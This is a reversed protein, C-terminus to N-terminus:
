CWDGRQIGEGLGIKRKAKKGQIEGLFRPHLGIPQKGPRLIAINKGESLTDGAEIAKIAQIGRKAFFRLEHESPDIVKVQPGLMAEVQRVARVMEGLEEATVAFSHDPGPLARDMTFHKEIVTAGLAAAAIPALLPDRSHDSLGSPVGFREKLWRIANLNLTEAPYCATCQLLTLDRGGAAYFTDVAWKIEFETSAGTSLILPKESKAALQLLHTHGIEYSAIKHRKVFPDVAVFDEPSFSSSMFEIGAKQCEEFLKPLAEYPMKIREFLDYIGSNEVYITAPQFTQFKVADAGAAKAAAIMRCAMEWNEEESGIRWNSGAEAIIFIGSEKKPTLSVLYRYVQVTEDSDELYYAAQELRKFGAKEFVHQSWENEVRIVALLDDYGQKKLWPQIALLATQGIHEGRHAPSVNISIACCKRKPDHLVPEFALYAVREGEKLVFLSPLDPFSYSPYFSEWRKPATHLSNQRTVPDNRWEMVLRAQEVTPQIIEFEM